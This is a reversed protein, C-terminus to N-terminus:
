DKRNGKEKPGDKPEVVLVVDDVWVEGALVMVFQIVAREAAGRALTKNFRRWDQDGRLHAIDIDRENLVKGAGDYLWLKLFANKSGKSKCQLAFRVVEDDGSPKPLEITQTVLDLPMGGTKQLQLSQAGEVKVDKDVRLRLTGSNGVSPWAKHVGDEFGGNRVLNGAPDLPEEGAPWEPAAAPEDGFLWALLKELRINPSDRWGHGGSYTSLQVAAGAEDLAQFATRVHSFPTVNDQPSQDLVFRRGKVTKLQNKDLPRWVSMAVYGRSFPSRRDSLLHYACPGSSSWALLAIRKPDVGHEKTVQKVVDLVYRDTSYRQGQVKSKGYPWVIKQDETWQHATVMVGLTDDPANGLIGNEVWPLFDKTGGGGPMVVLLAPKSVNEAKPPIIYFPSHAYKKHTHETARSPADDGQARAVASTGAVVLGLLVLARVSFWSGHCSRRAMGSM